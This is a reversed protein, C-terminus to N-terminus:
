PGSPSLAAVLWAVMLIWNQDSGANVFRRLEVISGSVPVPLSAMGRARRFKVPSESLVHRGTGNLEIVRWADDSLDLYVNQGDAIVRLGAGHVEQEFACALVL